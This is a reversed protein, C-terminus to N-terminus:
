NILGQKFQLSATIMTISRERGAMAAAFKQKAATEGEAGDIIEPLLQAPLGNANWGPNDVVLRLAESDDREETIVRGEGEAM